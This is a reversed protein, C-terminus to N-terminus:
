WPITVGDFRRFCGSDAPGLEDILRRLGAVSEAPQLSADPGGMDTAVWGPCFIGVSIGQGRLETALTAMAMNVATKSSRYFYNGPETGAISALASSIVVIRKRSGLAVNDLLAEAMKMPAFLNVELLQQWLAYDFHGFSQRPDREARAKPGFLGANNLLVDIPKGALRLALADIAERDQVDLAEIRLRGTDAALEHLAPAGQPHRCCAIVEWGDATYQRAFELGLGRNAGTVLVTPM